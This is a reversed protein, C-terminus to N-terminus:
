SRRLHHRQGQAGSRSGSAAKELRRHLDCACFEGRFKGTIGLRMPAARREEFLREGSREERGFIYCENCGVASNQQLNVYSTERTNRVSLLLRDWRLEGERKAFPLDDRIERTMFITPHLVWRM